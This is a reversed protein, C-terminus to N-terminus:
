RVFHFPRSPPNQGVGSAALRRIEAGEAGINPTGPKEFLM